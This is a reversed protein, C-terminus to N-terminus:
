NLLVTFPRVDIRLVGDSKKTNKKEITQPINGLFACSM